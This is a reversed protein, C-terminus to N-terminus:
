DVKVGAERIVKSWKAIDSTVLAALQEPTGSTVELGLGFM